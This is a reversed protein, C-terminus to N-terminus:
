GQKSVIFARYIFTVPSPRNCLQGQSQEEQQDAEGDCFAAHIEIRSFPFLKSCMPCEMRQSHPPPVPDIEQEMMEEAAVSAGGGEEVEMVDSVSTAHSQPQSGPFSKYSNM